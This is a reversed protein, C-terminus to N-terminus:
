IISLTYKNWYVCFGYGIIGGIVVGCGIGFYYEGTSILAGSAASAAGSLAGSKVVTKGGSKVKTPDLPVNKSPALEKAQASSSALIYVCLVSLSIGASRRFGRKFENQAKEVKQDIEIQEAITSGTQYPFGLPVTRFNNNKTM